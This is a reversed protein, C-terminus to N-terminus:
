KLSIVRYSKIDDADQMQEFASDIIQEIDQDTEIVLTLTHKM